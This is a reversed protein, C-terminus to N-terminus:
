EEDESSGSVDVEVNSIETARSVGEEKIREEEKLTDDKQEKDTEMTEKKVDEPGEVM